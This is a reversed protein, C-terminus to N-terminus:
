VGEGGGGGEVCMGVEEGRVDLEVLTIDYVHLAVYSLAVTICASHINPSMERAVPSVSLLNM